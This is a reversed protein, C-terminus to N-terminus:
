YAQEVNEQNQSLLNKRGGPTSPILALTRGLGTAWSRVTSGVVSAIKCHHGCQSFVTSPILIEISEVLLVALESNNM